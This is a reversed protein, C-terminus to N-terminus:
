TWDAPKGMSNGGKLVASRVGPIESCSVGGEDSALDFKGIQRLHEFCVLQHGEGADAGSLVHGVSFQRLVCEILDVPCAFEKPVLLRM